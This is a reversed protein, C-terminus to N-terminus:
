RGSVARLADVYAGSPELGRRGMMARAVELFKEFRYPGAGADTVWSFGEVCGALAGTAAWMVGTRAVSGTMLRTGIATKVHDGVVSGFFGLGTPEADAGPRAASKVGGYTNLLNSGVTEAGLNVWEGVWSDGLFGGHAKNSYGQVIVGKVEGGLKVHPGTAVPGRLQAADSVTNDAGLVLPGALVANPRVTSRDGIVIPGSTLDFVVGPFVTVGAGLRLPHDGVSQVGGSRGDAAGEASSEAALFAADGVVNRQGFRVADWPRQLLVPAEATASRLGSVDGGIVRAAGPGAVRAVVVDGAPDVVVSGGQPEVLGAEVAALRGNVLLVDGDPLRAADAVRGPWRERVLGALRTSPLLGNAAAGLTREIRELNTQAGCRVEFSARLDTLPALGPADDDFVYIPTDRM